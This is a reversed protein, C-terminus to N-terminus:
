MKNSTGNDYSM